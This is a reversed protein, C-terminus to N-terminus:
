MDTCSSLLLNSTTVEAENLMTETLQTIEELRVTVLYSEYERKTLNKFTNLLVEGM